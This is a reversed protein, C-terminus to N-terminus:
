CDHDYCLRLYGDDPVDHDAYCLRDRKDDRRDGHNWLCHEQRQNSGSPHDSYLNGDANCSFEM